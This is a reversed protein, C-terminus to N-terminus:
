EQGLKLPAIHGPAVQCKLLLLLLHLPIVVKCSLLVQLLLLLLLWPHLPPNAAGRGGM